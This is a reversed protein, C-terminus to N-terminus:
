LNKFGGERHPGTHFFIVVIGKRLLKGVRREMVSRDKSGSNKGKNMSTTNLFSKTQEKVWTRIGGAVGYLPPYRGSKPRLM